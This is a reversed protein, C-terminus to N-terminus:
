PVWVPCCISEVNDINGTLNFFDAGDLRLIYIDRRDMEFALYQGDPSWAPHRDHTRTDTLRFTRAGDPTMAFIDYSGKRNSHFAILQGDPSWVPDEDDAPDYTLRVPAGGDAEMVYIEPNGDRDSVFAVHQGDPSWSPDLDYAPDQTLNVPGVGNIPAQDPPEPASMVYIEANGDRLSTFALRAGDPSWAPAFDQAPHRTLNVPAGGSASVVFIESADDVDSVFALQAGDPSWAPAWEEVPIQALPARGSGDTNVTYLMKQGSIDSILAIRHSGGGIPPVPTPTLDPSAALGARLWVGVGAVIAITLLTLAFCVLTVVVTLSRATM